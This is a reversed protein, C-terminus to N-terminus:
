PPGGDHNGAVARRRGLRKSAERYLIALPAIGLLRHAAWAAAAGNTIIALSTAAATGASGWLPALIGLGALLVLLSCANIRRLAAAHSTMGLLEPMATFCAAGLQGIALIRLTTAGQEYGQGFGRLLEAPAALMIAVLPLALCLVLGVAQAAALALAQRNARAYLEAFKPAAMGAVGSILLNVILAVRWALAFLGTQRSSAVIGLVIAPASAILLQTVELTFLSLGQKLFQPPPGPPETSTHPVLRLFRWLLLGGCLATAAFSAAILILAGTVTLGTIATALCFMAPWLWSYIMQSFGIRQLGALAGALAAGLNQPIIALAGLALPGALEPKKLIFQAFPIAGAALIVSVIASACLVLLLARRIAPRVEGFRASAIDRAIQRTLARDIGLRGFGALAIMTSFVIYFGGTQIVGLEAAVLLHFGYRSPLDILRVGVSVMAGKLISGKARGGPSTDAATV